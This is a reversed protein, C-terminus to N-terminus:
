YNSFKLTSNFVVVSYCILYALFDKSFRYKISYFVEIENDMDGYTFDISFKNITIYYLYLLLSILEIVRKEIISRSLQGQISKQQCTALSYKIM